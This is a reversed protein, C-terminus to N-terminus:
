PPRRRRGRAQSGRGGSDATRVLSSRFRLADTGFGGAVFRGSSRLKPSSPPKPNRFRQRFRSRPGPAKAARDDGTDGAIGLPRHPDAAESDVEVNGADVEASDESFIEAGGQSDVETGAQPGTTKCRIGGAFGFPSAFFTRCNLILRGRRMRPTRRRRRSYRRVTRPRHRRRGAPPAFATPAPHLSRHRSRCPSSRGQWRFTRDNWRLIQRAPGSSPRILAEGNRIRLLRRDVQLASGAVDKATPYHEEAKKAM